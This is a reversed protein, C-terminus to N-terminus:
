PVDGFVDLGAAQANQQFVVGCGVGVDVGDGGFALGARRADADEGFEKCLAETFRRASRPLDTSATDPQANLCRSPVHLGPCAPAAPTSRSWCAPALAAPPTSSPVPLM